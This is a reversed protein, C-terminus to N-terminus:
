GAAARRDDAPDQGCQDDTEEENGGELLDCLDEYRVAGYEDKPMRQLLRGLFAADYKTTM